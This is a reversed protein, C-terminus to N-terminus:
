RTRTLNWELDTGQYGPGSMVYGRTGGDGTGFLVSEGIMDNDTDALTGQFGSSAEAFTAGVPLPMPPLRLIRGGVSGSGRWVLANGPYSAVVTVLGGGDSSLMLTATQPAGTMGLMGPVTPTYTLTYTGSVRLAPQAVTRFEITERVRTQAELDSELGADVVVRYVTDFLLPLSPTITM